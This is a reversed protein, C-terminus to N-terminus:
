GSVSRPIPSILRPLARSTDQQQEAQRGAMVATRHGYKCVVNRIPRRSENSVFAMHVLEGPTVDFGAVDEPSYDPFPGYGMCLGVEEAQEVQPRNIYLDRGSVYADRGAQVGTSFYNAQSTGDGIQVGQSDRLSVVYKGEQSGRADLLRMLEQAATLLDPDRAAGAQELERSLPKGWIEPDEAHKDMLYEGNNPHAFRRKALERVRAYATKVASKTGDQLAAAAGAALATLILTVPDM